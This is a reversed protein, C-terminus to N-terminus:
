VMFIHCFVKEQTENEKTNTDNIRNQPQKGQFRKRLKKSLFANIKQNIDIENRDKCM